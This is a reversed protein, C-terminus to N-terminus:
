RSRQDREVVARAIGEDMEEISVPKGSYPIIGRLATIPLVRLFTVRGEADLLIKVRDGPSLHLRERVEEPLTIQGDATLTAEM